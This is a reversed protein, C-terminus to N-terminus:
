IRELLTRTRDLWYDMGMERFLGEAEKLNEMAKEKEGRDLCLEGLFMRGQSYYPKYRLEDAMKIGRLIYEEPKHIQATEMRGLIRGLLIWSQAEIWKENNKQSLKLAEDMFSRANKLDGLHLCIDGLFWHYTSLFVEFGGDRQIKLGKEM